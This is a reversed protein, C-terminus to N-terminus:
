VASFFFSIEPGHMACLCIYELGRYTRFVLHKERSQAEVGLEKEQTGSVRGEQLDVEQLNGPLSERQGSLFLM